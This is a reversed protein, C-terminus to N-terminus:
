EAAPIGDQILGIRAEFPKWLSIPISIAALSSSSKNQLKARKMTKAFRSQNRRSSGPATGMSKLIHKLFQRGRLMSDYPSAFIM